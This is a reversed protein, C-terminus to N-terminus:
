TAGADSNSVSAPVPESFSAGASAGTVAGGRAAAAAGLGGSWGGGAAAPPLRASRPRAVAQGAPGVQKEGELVPGREQESAATAPRAAWGAPAPKARGAPGAEVVSTPASPQRPAPAVHAGHRSPAGRAPGPRPASPAAPPPAQCASTTRAWPPSEACWRGAPGGVRAPELVWAVLASQQHGAARRGPGPWA